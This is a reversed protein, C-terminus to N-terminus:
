SGSRRIVAAVTSAWWHAGGHATPIGDANLGRVIQRLSKGSAHEARIRRAVNAAIAPPRGLATARSREQAPRRQEAILRALEDVPVLRTGWPMEVTELLPLVRRDFTSRSIGLAEAAQTRMYALREVSTAERVILEDDPLFVDITRDLLADDPIVTRAAHDM